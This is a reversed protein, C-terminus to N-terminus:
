RIFDHLYHNTSYKMCFTCITENNVTKGQRKLLCIVKGTSVLQWMLLESDLERSSYGTLTCWWGLPFCDQRPLGRPLAYSSRNNLAIQFINHIYIVFIFHCKHQFAIDTAALKDSPLASHMIFVHKVPCNWLLVAKISKKERHIWIHVCM